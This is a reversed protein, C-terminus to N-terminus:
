YATNSLAHKVRYRSPKYISYLTTTSLGLQLNYAGPRLQNSIPSSFLLCVFDLIRFITVSEKVPYVPYVRDQYLKARRPAEKKELNEVMGSSSWIM